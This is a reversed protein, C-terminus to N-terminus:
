APHSIREGGESPVSPTAVDQGGVGRALMKLAVHTFDEVLVPKEHYGEGSAGVEARGPHVLGSAAEAVGLEGLIGQVKNAEEGSRDGM